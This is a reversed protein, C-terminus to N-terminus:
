NMVLFKVGHDYFIVMFQIYIYGFVKFWLHFVLLGYSCVVFWLLYGYGDVIFWLWLM